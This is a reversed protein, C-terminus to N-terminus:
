HQLCQWHWHWLTPRGQKLLVTRFLGDGYGLGRDTVPIRDAAEGNFLCAPM